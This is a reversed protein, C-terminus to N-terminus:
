RVGLALVAHDDAQDDHDFALRTGQELLASVESARVQLRRRDPSITRGSLWNDAVWRRVTRPSVGLLRAATTTTLWDGHAATTTTTLMSM